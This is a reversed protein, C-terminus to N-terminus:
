RDGVVEKMRQLLEKIEGHFGYNDKPLYNKLQHVIDNAERIIEKLENDESEIAAHLRRLEQQLYAEAATQAIFWLGADEAQKNVLEQIKSVSM